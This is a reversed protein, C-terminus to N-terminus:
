LEISTSNIHGMNHTILTYNLTCVWSSMVATMIILTEMAGLTEEEGRISVGRRLAWGLTWQSIKSPHWEEGVRDLVPRQQQRSELCVEKYVGTEEWRKVLASSNCIYAALDPRLHTRPISSMDGTFCLLVRGMSVEELVNERRKLEAEVTITKGM